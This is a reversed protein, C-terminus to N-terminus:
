EQYDATLWHWLAKLYGSGEYVMFAWAPEGYDDETAIPFIAALWSWFGFLTSCQDASCLMMPAAMFIVKYAAGECQPCRPGSSDVLDM